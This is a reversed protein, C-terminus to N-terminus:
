FGKEFVFAEIDTMDAGCVVIRGQLENAFIGVPHGLRQELFEKLDKEAAFVDGYVNKLTVLEKYEYQMTRVDLQDRKRSLYVAPLHFRTRKIFYPLDPVPDKPPRWGSPTVKQNTPPEPILDRPLLREVLKWDVNVEEFSTYTEEKKPVAHKWPDEWVNEESSTSLFRFSDALQQHRRCKPINSAIKRLM